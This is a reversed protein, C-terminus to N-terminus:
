GHSLPTVTPGQRRARDCAEFSWAAPDGRDSRGHDRLDLYVVQMADALVGFWPKLYSHDYTGPGGHLLVLTPREVMTPGDPVVAAGEIDFWLRRGNVEIRM